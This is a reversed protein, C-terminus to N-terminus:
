YTHQDRGGERGGEWYQSQVIRTEIFSDSSVILIWYGWCEWQWQWSAPSLKRQACRATYMRWPRLWQTVLDRHNVSDCDENDFEKSRTVNEMVSRENEDLDILDDIDALVYESIKDEVDVEKEMKISVGPFNESIIKNITEVNNESAGINM